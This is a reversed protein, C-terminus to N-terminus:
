PEPPELRGHESQVRRRVERIIAYAHDVPMAAAIRETLSGEPAAERDSAMQRFARVRDTIWGM